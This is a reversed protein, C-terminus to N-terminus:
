GRDGSAPRRAGDTLVTRARTRARSQLVALGLVILGVTGVLVAGQRSFSGAAVLAATAAVWAADALVVPRTTQVLRRPSASALAVLLVAFGVLGVGVLRVPITWSTGIGLRDRIWGAFAIGMTGSVASFIANTRVAARLSDVAPDDERATARHSTQQGVSPTSM